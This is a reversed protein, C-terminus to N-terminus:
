REYAEILKQEIEKVNTGDFKIVNPHNYDSNCSFTPMIGLGRPRFKLWSDMYEPYDDYLVRGYVVGKDRTLHFETDEGIHRHIWEMKEKAAIPKNKPTQTLIQIRFGINRCIQLVKMGTEIPELDIWFGPTKSIMEKRNFIHDPLMGHVHTTIPETPARLLELKALMADNYNVLSNDLDFLAIKRNVNM